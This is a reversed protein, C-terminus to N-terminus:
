RPEGALMLALANRVLLELGATSHFGGNVQSSRKLESVFADFAGPQPPTPFRWFTELQDPGVLGPRDYIAQGLVQVPKGKALALPGVTSNVTVVGRCRGLLWDLDFRSVYAVRSDISLGRSRKTVQSQWNALDPDFPHRKVLLMTDTPAYEAFSALVHDLAESMSGFMSRGVIQADGDLQLPFLFFARNGIARVARESDATERAKRLYRRCWHLMEVGAHNVRHSEYHPFIPRLLTAALWYNVSENMRRGFRSEVPIEDDVALADFGTAKRGADWREITVHNPRLYGEEFEYVRLGAEAAVSIAARHLPRLEGFLALDTVREAKLYTCLWNKWGAMDGGYRVSDGIRWDLWDGGNFNIRSARHGAGRLTTALMRFFPGPLGQLFVFHRPM